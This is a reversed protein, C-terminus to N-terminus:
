SSQSEQLDLHLKNRESEQLQENIFKHFIHLGTLDFPTKVLTTHLCLPHTTRTTDLDGRQPQTYTLRHNIVLPFETTTRPVPHLEHNLSSTYISQTIEIERV